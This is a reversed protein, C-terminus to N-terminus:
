FLSDTKTSSYIGTDSGIDELIVSPVGKLKRILKEIESSALNSLDITDRSSLAFPYIEDGRGAFSVLIYKNIHKQIDKILLQYENGVGGTFENAKIAYGESLVVVVKDSKHINEVMMRMFDNASCSDNLAKDFTADFGRKRLANVLRHVKLQHLEDNQGEKDTWCYTVFVKIPPKASLQVKSEEKM